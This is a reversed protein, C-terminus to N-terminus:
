MAWKVFAKYIGTFLIICLVAQKDVGRSPWSAVYYMLPENCVAVVWVTEQFTWPSMRLSFCGMVPPSSLAQVAYYKQLKERGEHWELIIWNTWIFYEDPFPDSPFEVEQVVRLFFFPCLRIDRTRLSYWSWVYGLMEIYENPEKSVCPLFFHFTDSPCPWLFRFFTM